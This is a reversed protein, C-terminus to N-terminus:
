EALDLEVGPAAIQLHHMGFGLEQSPFILVPIRGKM